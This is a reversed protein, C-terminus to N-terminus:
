CAAADALSKDMHADDHEPSWGEVEVQRRREAIVDLLAQSSQELKREAAEAREAADLLAYLNNALWEGWDHEAM